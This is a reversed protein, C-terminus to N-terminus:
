KGLNTILVSIAAELLLGQKVWQMMCACKGPVTQVLAWTFRKRGMLITLAYIVAAAPDLGWFYPEKGVSIIPRTIDKALNLPHKVRKITSVSNVPMTPDLALIPPKKGPIIIHGSTGVAWVARALM